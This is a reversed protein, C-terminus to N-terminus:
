DRAFGKPRIRLTIAALVVVALGGLIPSIYTSLLV